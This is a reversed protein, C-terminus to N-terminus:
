SVSLALNKAVVAAVATVRCLGALDLDTANRKAALCAILLPVLINELYKCPVNLVNVAPHSGNGTADVAIIQEAHTDQSAKALTDKALIVKM